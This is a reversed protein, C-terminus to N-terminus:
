RRMRLLRAAYSSNVKEDVREAFDAVLQLLAEQSCAKPVLAFDPELINRGESWYDGQLMFNLCDAGFEALYVHADKPGVATDFEKIAIATGGEIPAWGYNALEAVIQAKLNEKRSDMTNLPPSLPNHFADVAQTSSSHHFVGNDGAACRIRDVGIDGYVAFWHEGDPAETTDDPQLFVTRADIAYADLGPQHKYTDSVFVARVGCPSTADSAVLGRKLISARHAPPSYHYVVLPQGKDDVLRGGDFWARSAAADTQREAARPAQGTDIQRNM